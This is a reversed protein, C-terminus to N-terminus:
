LEGNAESRSPGYESGSMKKQLALAYDRHKQYVPGATKLYRRVPPMRPRTRARGTLSLRISGSKTRSAPRTSHSESAAFLVGTLNSLM